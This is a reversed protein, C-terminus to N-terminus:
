AIHSQDLKEVDRFKPTREKEERKKEGKKGEKRGEKKKLNSIIYYRICTIVILMLYISLVTGLM